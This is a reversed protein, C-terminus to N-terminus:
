ENNEGKLVNEFMEYVKDEYEDDSYQSISEQLEDMTTYKLAISRLNDVMDQDGVCMNILASILVNEELSYKKM